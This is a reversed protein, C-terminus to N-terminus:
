DDYILKYKYGDISLVPRVSELEFYYGDYSKKEFSLGENEENQIQLGYAEAEAISEFVKLSRQYFEHEGCHIEWVIEFLEKSM